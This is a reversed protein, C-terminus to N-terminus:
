NPKGDEGEDSELIRKANEQVYHDAVAASTGLREAIRKGLETSPTDTPQSDWLRTRENEVAKAVRERGGLKFNGGMDTVDDSGLVDRLDPYCLDWIVEGAAESFQNLVIEGENTLRFDAMFSGIPHVQSPHAGAWEDLAIIAERRTSATVVSFEGNPWRCLYVDSEYDDLNDTPEEIHAQASDHPARSLVSEQPTTDSAEVFEKASEETDCTMEILQIDEGDFAPHTHVLEMLADDISEIAEEAPIARESGDDEVDWGGGAQTYSDRAREIIAELRADDVVLTIEVKYLKKM